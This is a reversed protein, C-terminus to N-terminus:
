LKIIVTLGFLVAAVIGIVASSRRESPTMARNLGVDKGRIASAIFALGFVCWFVAALWYPAKALNAIVVGVLSGIKTWWLPDRMTNRLRESYPMESM